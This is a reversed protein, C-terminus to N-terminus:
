IRIHRNPVITSYLRVEYGHIDECSQVAPSYWVVFSCLGQVGLPPPPQPFPITTVPVTTPPLTTSPVTTVPVTANVTTSELFIHLSILPYHYSILCITLNRYSSAAIRFVFPIIFAFEITLHPICPIEPNLCQM